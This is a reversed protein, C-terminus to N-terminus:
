TRGYLTSLGLHCHAVLPRMGGSDALRLAKQYDAEGDVLDFADPHTRVEARLHLAHAAEGSRSSSCDLARSSLRRADDLRGRGLAHYARSASAAVHRAALDQVLQEAEQLRGLVEDAEGLQGLVWAGSAVAWPLALVADATRLAAIGHEIRPRARAWHGQALL